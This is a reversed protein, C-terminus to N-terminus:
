VKKMGLSFRQQIADGSETPYNFLARGAAWDMCKECLPFSFDNNWQRQRRLLLEDHWADKISSTNIDGAPYNEEYDADCQTVHGTWHINMTRLLWPCPIRNTINKGLDPHDRVTGWGQRLRLKVVAGENLWYKEFSEVEEENEDMVIFQVVVEPKYGPTKNCLQILKKVNDCTQSFNGGPRVLNFTKETLADIAIYVSEVHFDLLAIAEKEGMFTGNTNVHLRRFGAEFAYKFYSIMNPDLFPEGMIAPWIRTEPSEKVVEDIIKRFLAPAMSGKSRKMSEYPCVICRLNCYNHTEVAIEAPFSLPIIGSLDINATRDKLM